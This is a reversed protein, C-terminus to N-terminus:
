SERGTVGGGASVSAVTLVFVELRAPEVPRLTFAGSPFFGHKQCGDDPLSPLSSMSM